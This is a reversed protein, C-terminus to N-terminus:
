YVNDNRSSSSNHIELVWIQNRAMDRGQRVGELAGTVKQTFNWLRLRVYQVGKVAEEEAVETDGCYALRGISQGCRLWVLSRETRQTLTELVKGMSTKSGSM